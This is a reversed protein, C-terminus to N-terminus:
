RRTDRESDDTKEVHTPLIPVNRGLRTVLGNDHPSKRGEHRPFAPRKKPVSKQMRNESIIYPFPFVIQSILRTHEM